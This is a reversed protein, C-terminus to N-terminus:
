CLSTSSNNLNAQTKNLKFCNGRTNCVNPHLLIYESLNCKVLNHLLKYVFLMDVRIRGLELTELNCVRIRETYNFNCLGSLKKTFNRQVNELLDILYIYYPSYIISGYYLLSRM